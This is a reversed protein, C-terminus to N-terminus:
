WAVDQTKTQDKKDKWKLWIYMPIGSLFLLSGYGIVAFGSGIITWFSYILGIIAIIVSKILRHHSFEASKIFLLRLEALACALYPVLYALTALLVIFTFQKVLTTNVTLLLLGTILLSSIIQGFIPTHFRSLKAFVKPFLGDRAAAMPIQGQLLIWGNLAGMCSIIASISILMAFKPGLLIQAADAYPAQSTKLIASPILGMTAVTSAIYILTAILTGCITARAIDRKNNADEAPITASELGIFAWLTLTAAGTLAAFNSQGSINFSALYHFNLHFLGIISLFILPLSKLLTTIVQTVGASRVGLINIFTFFWVSGIKVILSLLPNFANPMQENLAPWFIGVYGILAIAVAANAVWIAIWYTYAILFGVLDGFAEHCYVYPGGTKPLMKSLDVFILALFIAGVATFIWAFISISGFSALSSPLLFIGSGIMNGVVLATLMWFGLGKTPPPTIQTM